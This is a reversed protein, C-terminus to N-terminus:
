DKVASSKQHKSIYVEAQRILHDMRLNRVELEENASGKNPANSGLQGGGWGPLAAYVHRPM